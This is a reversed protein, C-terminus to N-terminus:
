RFFSPILVKITMPHSLCQVQHKGNLEFNHCNRKSILHFLGNINPGVLINAVVKWPPGSQGTQDNWQGKGNNQCLQQRWYQELNQMRHWVHLPKPWILEASLVMGNLSHFKWFKLGSHKNFLFRESSMHCHQARAAGLPGQHRGKYMYSKSGPSWVIM